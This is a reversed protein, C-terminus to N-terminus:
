SRAAERCLTRRMPLCGFHGLYSRGMCESVPWFLFRVRGNRDVDFSQRTFCEGFVIEATNGLKDFCDVELSRTRGLCGTGNALFEFISVQM